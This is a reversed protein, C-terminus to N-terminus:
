NLRSLLLQRWDNLLNSLVASSNALVAADIGRELERLRERELPPMDALFRAPWPRGLRDVEVLVESVLGHLNTEAKGSAVKRAVEPQNNCPNNCQEKSATANSNCERNRRLVALARAKIREQQLTTADVTAYCNCSKQAHLEPDNCVRLGQLEAMATVM